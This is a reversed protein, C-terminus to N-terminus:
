VLYSSKYFLINYIKPGFLTTDTWILDRDHWLADRCRFKLLNFVRQELM